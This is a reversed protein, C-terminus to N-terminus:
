TLYIDIIFLKLFGNSNGNVCQKANSIFIACRAKAPYRQLVSHFEEMELGNKEGGMWM